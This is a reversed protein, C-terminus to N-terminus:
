IVDRLKPVNKIGWGEMIVGNTSFTKTSDDFMGQCGRGGELPSTM